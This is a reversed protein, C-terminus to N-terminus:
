PSPGPLPGPSCSPPPGNSRLRGLTPAAKPDAIGVQMVPDLSLYTVAGTIATALVGPGVGGLLASVVVAPILLLFGTDLGVIDLAVTGLIAAASIIAATGYRVPATADM